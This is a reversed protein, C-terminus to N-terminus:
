ALLRIAWRTYKGVQYIKRVLINESRTNKGVQYIKGGKGNERVSVIKGGGGV